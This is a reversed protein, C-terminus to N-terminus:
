QSYHLLQQWLVFNGDSPITLIYELAGELSTIFIRSNRPVCGLRSRAVIFSSTVMVLVVTFCFQKVKRLLQYVFFSPWAIPTGVEGM